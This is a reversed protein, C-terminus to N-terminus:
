SVILRIGRCGVMGDLGGDVAELLCAKGEDAFSVRPGLGAARSALVIQGSVCRGNDGEGNALLPLGSVGNGNDAGVGVRGAQADLGNGLLAVDAVLLDADLGVAATDPRRPKIAIEANSASDHHALASLHDLLEDLNVLGDKADGREGDVQVALGVEVGVLFGLQEGDRTESGSLEVLADFSVIGVGLFIGLVRGEVRELLHVDAVVRGHQVEHGGFGAGFDGVNDIELEDEVVGLLGDNAADVVFEDEGGAEVVQAHGVAGDLTEDAGDAVGRGEVGIGGDAHSDAEVM